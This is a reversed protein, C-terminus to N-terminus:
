AGRPTPGHLTKGAAVREMARKLRRNRDRANRREKSRQLREAAKAAAVETRMRTVAQRAQETASHDAMPRLRPTWEAEMEIDGSSDADLDSSDVRESPEPADTITVAAGTSALVAAARGAATARTSAGEGRVLHEPAPAGETRHVHVVVQAGEFYALPDSPAWPTTWPNPAPKVGVTTVM